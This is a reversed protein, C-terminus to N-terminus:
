GRATPSAADPWDGAALRAPESRDCKFIFNNQFGIVHFNPLLSLTGATPSSGPLFAGLEHHRLLKQECSWLLQSHTLPVAKPTATSGSTFMVTAVDNPCARFPM